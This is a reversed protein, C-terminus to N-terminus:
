DRRLAARHGAKDCPALSLTIAAGAAAAMLYFSPALPNQTSDILYTAIYPATGGFLMVSANYGISISSARVSTPFMEAMYAFLPAAGAAISVSLVAGSLMATALSGSEAILRFAPYTLCVLALSAGIIVPRRGIRDSLAGWIPLAVIHAILIVATVSFVEDSKFGVVTRLYSPMYSLVTYFGVGYTLTAGFAVAIWRSQKQLSSRLPSPDAGKKELLERFLPTDEVRTRLYLGTMGLPLAILFPIRWGWNGMFERSYNANLCLMLVSGFLLGCASAAPLLSSLLGRRGDPAYENIFSSAGAIEGGASLGQLVRCLLLLAPALVGIQAFTPLVGIAFTALSMLVVVAALCRQRGVRDGIYGFVLGGFPRAFFAVAFTAFVPLLSSDAFFASALYTAVYAYVGYDYWEVFHGIVGAAIARKLPSPPVKETGPIALAPATDQM